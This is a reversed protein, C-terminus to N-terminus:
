EKTIGLWFSCPISSRISWHIRASLRLPNQKVIPINVPAHRRPTRQRKAPQAAINRALKQQAVVPPINVNRRRQWLSEEKSIIGQNDSPMTTISFSCQKAPLWWACLNKRYWASTWALLWISISTQICDQVRLAVSDCANVPNWEQAPPDSEYQERLSLVFTM